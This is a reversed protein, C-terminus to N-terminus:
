ETVIDDVSIEMFAHVTKVGERNFIVPHRGPDRRVDHNELGEIGCIRGIRHIWGM